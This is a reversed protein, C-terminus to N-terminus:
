KNLRSSILEDMFVLFFFDWFRLGKLLHCNRRSDQHGLVSLPSSLICFSSTASQSLAVSLSSSLYCPLSPFYVFYYFCNFSVIPRIEYAYVEVKDSSTPIHGPMIRSTEWTLLTDSFHVSIAKLPVHLCVPPMPLPYLHRTVSALEGAPIWLHFRKSLTPCSELLANNLGLYLCSLLLSLQCHQWFAM